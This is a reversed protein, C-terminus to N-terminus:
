LIRRPSFEAIDQYYHVRNMIRQPTIRRRRAAEVVGMMRHSAQSIDGSKMPRVKRDAALSTTDSVQRGDYLRASRSKGSMVSRIIVRGRAQERGWQFQYVNRRSDDLTVGGLENSKFSITLAGDEPSTTRWRVGLFVDVSGDRGGPSGNEMICFAQTFPDDDLLWIKRGKDLAQTAVCTHILGQLAMVESLEVEGSDEFAM